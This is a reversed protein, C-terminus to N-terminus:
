TALWHWSQLVMNFTAQLGATGDADNGYLSVTAQYKGHILFALKSFGPAAKDTMVDINQGNIVTQTDQFEQPHMKRYTYASDNTLQGSPNVFIVIELDWSEVDQRTYSYTVTNPTATNHSSVVQTLAAPYNFSAYLGGGPTPTMDIAAQPKSTGTPNNIVGQSPGNLKAILYGAIVVILVVVALGAGLVKRRKSVSM